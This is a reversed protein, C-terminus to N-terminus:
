GTINDFDAVHNVTPYTYTGYFFSAEAGYACLYPFWGRGAITQVHNAEWGVPAPGPSLLMSSPGDDNPHLGPTRSGVTATGDAAGDRNDIICRTDADYIVVSWLLEAPVPGNIRIVYSDGGHLRVGDEDEFKGLYAQAKGPTPITMAPSTTVAEYCYRARPDLIDYNTMRQFNKIGDGWDGSLIM